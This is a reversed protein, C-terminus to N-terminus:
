IHVYMYIYPCMHACDRKRNALINFLRCTWLCSVELAPCAGVSVYERLFLRLGRSTHAAVAWRKAYFLVAM